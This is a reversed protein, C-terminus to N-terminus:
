AHHTYLNHKIISYHNLMATDLVTRKVTWQLTLIKFINLRVESFSRWVNIRKLSSSNNIIVQPESDTSWLSLLANYQNYHIYINFLDLSTM